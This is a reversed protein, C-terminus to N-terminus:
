ARARAYVSPIAPPAACSGEPPAGAMSPGQYPYGGVPGKLPYIYGIIYGKRARESLIGGERLGGSVVSKVTRMQQVDHNGSKMKVMKMKMMMMKVMKMREM